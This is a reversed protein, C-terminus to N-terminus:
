ADTGGIPGGTVDKNPDVEYIMFLQKRHPQVGKVKKILDKKIMQKATTNINAATLMQGTLEQLKGKSEGATLGIDGAEELIKYFQKETYDM